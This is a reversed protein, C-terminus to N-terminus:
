QLAEISNVFSTAQEVFDSDYASALILAPGAPHEPIWWGRNVYEPNLALPVGWGWASELAYACPDLPTCSADDVIQADFRFAALGGVSTESVATIALNDPPTELFAAFDSLDVGEDLSAAGGLLPFLSPEVNSVLLISGQDPGQLGNRNGVFRIAGPRNENVDLGTIDASIQLGFNQLQFRGELSTPSTPQTFQAFLPQPGNVVIEAAAPSDSLGGFSSGPPLEAALGPGTLEATSVLTAFAGEAISTQAFRNVDASVYLVGAGTEAVFVHANQFLFGSLMDAGARERAFLRPRNQESQPSQPVSLAFPVTGVTQVTYGALERGFLEITEGNAAVDIASVSELASVFEAISTVARGDVTQTILGIRATDTVFAGPPGIPDIVVADGSAYVDHREDVDFRIGGLAPFTVTRAQDGIDPAVSNVLGFLSEPNSGSGHDFVPPTEIQEISPILEDRLDAAGAALAETSGGSAVVLLGGNREVVFWEEISQPSFEMRTRNDPNESCSLERQSRRTSPSAQVSFGTLTEGFLQLTSGTEIPEVGVQATVLDVWEQVTAIPVLQSGEIATYGAQGFLVFPPTEAFGSYGPDFIVVCGDSVAARSAQALEFRVGGLSPLAHTGVPLAVSLFPEGVSEATETTAAADGDDPSPLASRDAGSVTDLTQLTERDGAGGIGLAWLSGAILITFLVAAAVLLRASRGEVDPQPPNPLRGVVTDFQAHQSDITSQTRARRLEDFHESVRLRIEAKNDSREASHEEISRLRKSIDREDFSEKSM